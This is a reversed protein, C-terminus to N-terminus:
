KQIIFKGESALVGLEDTVRYLYVGSNNNSLDIQMSAENIKKNYIIEGLMDYVQILKGTTSPLQITFQGNNPNPYLTITNSTSQTEKIGSVIIPTCVATDFPAFYLFGLNINQHVDYITSQISASDPLCWYNDTVTRNFSNEMVINYQTNSCISNCSLYGDYYDLGIQNNSIDNNLVIAGTTYIGLYNYEITCNRITDGSINLGVDLNSDFVCYDVPGGGSGIGSGNYSFTSNYIPGHSPHCIGRGNHLFLCGKILAGGPDNMGMTDYKFTCTDIYTGIDNGLGVYNSNFLCHAVPNIPGHTSVNIATTAYSFRCYRFSTPDNTTYMFIGVYDNAMPTPSSSTFIISDALTGNAILGGKELLEANTDFEVVVGPQITVTAGSLIVVTDKIIYPSNAITWTTSTFIGGTVITSSYVKNNTLLALYLFTLIFHM